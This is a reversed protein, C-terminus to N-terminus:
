WGARGAANLRDLLSLGESAAEALRGVIEESM